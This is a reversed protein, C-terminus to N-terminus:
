RTPSASCAAPRVARAGQAPGGPAANALFVFRSDRYHAPVKPDFRELVNLQTELTHRTNWDAEYRGSWRFTQGDLREVGLTDVGRAACSSSTRAASTRAWSGSWRAGARLRAAAVGFHVASGGLLSERRDHVTEVTDYALTGIVLLSM